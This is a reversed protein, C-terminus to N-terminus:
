APQDMGPVGRALLVQVGDRRRASVAPAVLEAGGDQGAQAAHGRGPGFFPVFCFGPRSSSSNQRSRRLSATSRNVSSALWRPGRVVDAFAPTRGSSCLSFIEPRRAPPVADGLIAEIDAAVDVGGALVALVGM